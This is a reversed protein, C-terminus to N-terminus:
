KLLTMYYDMVQKSVNEWSYKEATALGERSMSERLGRDKMLKLLTAALSRRNPFRDEIRTWLPRIAVALVIAWCIASLFPQLIVVSLVAVAVLAVVFFSTKYVNWRNESSTM